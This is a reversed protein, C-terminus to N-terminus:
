SSTERSTTPGVLGDDPLLVANVELEVAREWIDMQQREGKDSQAMVRPNLEMLRVHGEMVPARDMNSGLWGCWDDTEALLGRGFATNNGTVLLNALSAPSHM